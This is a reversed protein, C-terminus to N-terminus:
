FDPFVCEGPWVEEVFEKGDATRCVLGAASTQKYIPYAPDRKIGPDVITVLKFNQASLTQALTEFNPFRERSYTFVRYGDMYDIDLVITDCPIKRARM